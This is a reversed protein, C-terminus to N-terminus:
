QSVLFLAFLHSLSDSGESISRPLSFYEFPAEASFISLSSGTLRKLLFLSVICPVKRFWCEYCDITFIGLEHLASLVHHAKNWVREM